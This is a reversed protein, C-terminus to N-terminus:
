IFTYCENFQLRYHSKYYVVSKLVANNFFKVMTSYLPIPVYHFLTTNRRDKRPNFFGGKQQRM